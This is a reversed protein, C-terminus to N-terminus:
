LFKIILKKNLLNYFRCLKYHHFCVLYLFLVRLLVFNFLDGILFGQSYDIFDDFLDDSHCDSIATDVQTLEHSNVLSFRNEDLVCQLKEISFVLVVYFM